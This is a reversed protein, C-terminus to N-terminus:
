NISILYHGKGQIKGFQGREVRTETIDPLAQGFVFASLLSNKVRYDAKDWTDPNVYLFLTIIKGNEVQEAGMVPQDFGQIYLATPLEKYQNAIVVKIKKTKDFKAFYIPDLQTAVKIWDVNWKYKPNESVFSLRNIGSVVFVLYLWLGACLGMMVGVAVMLWKVQPSLRKM